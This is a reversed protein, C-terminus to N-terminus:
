LATIRSIWYGGYGNVACRCLLMNEREYSEAIMDDAEAEKLQGMGPDLGIGFAPSIWTIRPGMNAPLVM